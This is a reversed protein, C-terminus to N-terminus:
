PAALGLSVRGASSPRFGAAGSTARLVHYICHGLGLAETEGSHSGPLERPMEQPPSRQKPETVVGRVKRNKGRM